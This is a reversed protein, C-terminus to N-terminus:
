DQMDREVEEQVIPVARSAVQEQVGEEARDSPSGRGPRSHAAVAMEALVSVAAM